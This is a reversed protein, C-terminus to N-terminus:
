GLLERLYPTLFTGKPDLEQRAKRFEDWKPYLPELDEATLRHMKGWHPRGEHNRFIAEVDPFFGEYSARAPEHASITVSARGYHPSLPIDDAAVSRYELPWTVEKHKGMMLERLESLCDPGHEEPLSFEIENFLTNRESPYIEDWHGIREGEFTDPNSEEFDDPNDTKNLTKMLCADLGSVWFFEFHENDAISRELGAFCEEFSARWSKEHLRYTPELQLTIRTVIGLAGLSVQGARLLDPRKDLSCTALEGEGSVMELGVVHTSLNGLDKGTGHTGTAIAGAVAQRDIDPLNKMALGAQRLPKGLHYLKTGGLVTAQRRASDITEIGRMRALVLLTEDSAGLPTFSHGSGVARVHQGRSVADRVAALVGDVDTPRAMESPACQVSGSWNKWEHSTQASLPTAPLAALAAASALVERRTLKAPGPPGSRSM